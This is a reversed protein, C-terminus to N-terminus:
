DQPRLSGHRLQLSPPVFAHLEDSHKSHISCYHTYLSTINRRYSLPQLALYLNDGVLGCLRNQVRDFSFLSSLAAGTCFHSLLGNKTEDLEEVTLANCFSKPVKPLPVFLRGSYFCEAVFSTNNMIKEKM